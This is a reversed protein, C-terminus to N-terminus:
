KKEQRAQKNIMNTPVEWKPYNHKHELRFLVGHQNAHSTEKTDKSQIILKHM